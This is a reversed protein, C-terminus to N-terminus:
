RKVAGKELEFCELFLHFYEWPVREPFIKFYARGACSACLKFKASRPGVVVTVENRCDSDLALEDGSQFDFVPNWECRM